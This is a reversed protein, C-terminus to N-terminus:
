AVAAEAPTAAWPLPPSLLALQNSIITQYSQTQEPTWAALVWGAVQEQTLDAYPTFPTGATYTVPTTGGFAATNNGDSGVYAWHVLYVVDTQGEAQPLCDMQTVNLTYTVAM